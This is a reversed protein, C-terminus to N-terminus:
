RVPDLRGGQYRMDGPRASGGGGSFSEVQELGDEERRLIELQRQLAKVYPSESNIVVRRFRFLAPSLDFCQRGILVVCADAPVRRKNASQGLDDNRAPLLQALGEPRVREASDARGM